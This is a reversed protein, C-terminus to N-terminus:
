PTEHEGRLDIADYFLVHAGWTAVLRNLTSSGLALQHNQMLVDFYTLDKMWRRHEDIHLNRVRSPHHSFHEEELEHQFRVHGKIKKLSKLLEKHNITQDEHVELRQFAKIIKILLRVTYDRGQDLEDNGLPPFLHVLDDPKTAKILQPSIWKSVDFHQLHHVRHHHLWMALWQELVPKREAEDIDLLGKLTKVMKRHEEKHLDQNGIKYREQLKREMALSTEFLRKLTSIEIDSTGFAAAAEDIKRYIHDLSPIGTQKFSNLISSSEPRAVIAAALSQPGFLRADEENIHIVVWEMIAEKLNLTINLRGASLNKVMENLQKLINQHQQAHQYMGVLNHESIFAEERKFHEITTDRLRTCLEGV